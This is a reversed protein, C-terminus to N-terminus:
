KSRGLGRGAVSLSFSQLSLLPHLLYRPLQQTPVIVTGRSQQRRPGSDQEGSRPTGSVGFASLCWLGSRVEGVWEGLASDGSAPRAPVTMPNARASPAPGPRPRARPPRREGSSLDRAARPPAPLGHRHSRPLPPSPPDRFVTRGARRRLRLLGLCSKLFRGASDSGRVAQRGSGAEGHVRRGSEGTRKEGCRGSERRAPLAGRARNPLAARLGARAPRGLSACIGPPASPEPPGQACRGSRLPAPAPRPGPRQLPSHSERTGAVRAARRGGGGASPGAWVRPPAAAVASGARRGRLRRTRRPRLPAPARSPRPAPVRGGGAKRREERRSHRQGRRRRRRRGRTNIAPAAAGEAAPPKPAASGPARAPLPLRRLRRRQPPLLRATFLSRPPLAPAPPTRAAPQLKHSDLSGCRVAPAAPSPPRTTGPTRSRTTPRRAPGPCGQGGDCSSPPRPAGRRGRRGEGRVEASRPSGTEALRERGQRGEGAEERGVRGSVAGSAAEPGRAAIEARSAPQPGPLHGSAHNGGRRRTGAARGRAARPERRTVFLFVGEAYLHPTESHRLVSKQPPPYALVSLTQRRM